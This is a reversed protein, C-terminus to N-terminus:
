PRHSLSPFRWPVRNGIYFTGPEPSPISCQGDDNEGCTVASGDSRILVTHSRGASIQTYLMGEDLARVYCQGAGNAGCATVWGDSRLLVTHEKGAAVQTYTHFKVLSSGGFSYRVHVPM